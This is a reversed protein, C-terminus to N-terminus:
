DANVEGWNRIRRYSNETVLVHTFSCAQTKKGRTFSFLFFQKVVVKLSIHQSKLEM